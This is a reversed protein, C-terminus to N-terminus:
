FKEAKLLAYVLYAALAICLTLSLSEMASMDVGTQISPWAAGFRAGAACQRGVVFRNVARIPHGHM